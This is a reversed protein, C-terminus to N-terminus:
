AYLMCLCIIDVHVCVCSCFFLVIGLVCAGVRVRECVVDFGFLDFVRLFAGASFCLFRVCVVIASLAWLCVCVCVGVLVLLLMSLLDITSPVFLCALSCVFFAPLCIM